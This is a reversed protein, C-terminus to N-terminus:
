FIAINLVMRGVGLDILFIRLHFATSRATDTSRALRLM